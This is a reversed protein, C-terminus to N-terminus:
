VNKQVGGAAVFGDAYLGYNTTDTTDRKTIHLAKNTSDYEIRLPGVDIHSASALVLDGSLDADVAWAKKWRHDSRGCEVVGDDSHFFGYTANFVYQGYSTGGPAQLSIFASGDAMGINGRQTQGDDSVFAFYTTYINRIHGSLFRRDSAGISNTSDATTLISAGSMTLPGTLTGGTLSLYDLAPIDTKVLSSKYALSGLGTVAINDVTGAATTLKLTGNNTGGALTVAQHATLAGLDSATITRDVSGDYTKTGFTLKYPCKLATPIEDRYALYKTETVIPSGVQMLDEYTYVWKLRPKSVASISYNQASLTGLSFKLTNVLFNYTSAGTKLAYDGLPQHETLYGADAHNGWGYATEGHAIQNQYSASLRITRTGSTTIATGSNTVVIGEGQNLTISTVTGTNSTKANWTSIDNATIGAAASASFVPDSEGTLFGRGNVWAQTAYGTLDPSIASQAINTWATGNWSLLDGSALTGLSVDGLESLFSAGGGGGGGTGVGGASIWGEAWLGAYAPNLKLTTVGNVTVPIFWDLTYGDTNALAVDAYGAKIKSTEYTIDGTTEDVVEDTLYIYGDDVTIMNLDDLNAHVHNGGSSYHGAESVSTSTSVIAGGLRRLRKSRPRATRNVASQIYQREPM